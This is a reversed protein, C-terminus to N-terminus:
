ACILASGVVPGDAETAGSGDTAAALEGSRPLGEATAALVLVRVAGVRTTATGVLAERGGVETEGVDVPLGEGPALGAGGNAM